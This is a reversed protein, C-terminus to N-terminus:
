CRLICCYVQNCLQRFVVFSFSFSEVNFNLSCVLFIREGIREMQQHAFIRTRTMMSFPDTPWDSNADQTCNVQLREVYTCILICSIRVTLRGVRRVRNRSLQTFYFPTLACTAPRSNWLATCACKLWGTLDQERPLLEIGSLNIILVFICLWNRNKFCANHGWVITTTTDDRRRKLRSYM